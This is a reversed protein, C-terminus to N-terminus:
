NARAPCPSLTFPSSRLDAKCEMKAASADAIDLTADSFTIAYVTKTADFGGPCLRSKDVSIPLTTVNFTANGHVTQIPGSPPAVPRERDVKIRSRVQM